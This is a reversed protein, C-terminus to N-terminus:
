VNKAKISKIGNKKKQSLKVFLIHAISRTHTHTHTRPEKHLSLSIPGVSAVVMDNDMDTDSVRACVGCNRTRLLGQMTPAM